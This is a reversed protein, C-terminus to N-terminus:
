KMRTMPAQDEEEEFCGVQGLCWALYGQLETTSGTVVIRDDPDRYYELDISENELAKELLELSLHDIYLDGGELRVRAAAHIRITYLEVNEDAGYEEDSLMFDVFLTEQFTFFTAKVLSEEGDEVIRWLYGSATEEFTWVEGDGANWSGVLDPVEVVDGAFYFPRVSAVFCGNLLITVAASLVLLLHPTRSDRITRM